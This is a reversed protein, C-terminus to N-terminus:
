DEVHYHVLEAPRIEGLVLALHSVGARRNAYLLALSAPRSVDRDGHSDESDRRRRMAELRPDANEALVQVHVLPLNEHRQSLGAFHRAVRWVVVVEGHAVVPGLHRERSLLSSGTTHHTRAHAIADVEEGIGIEVDGAPAPARHALGRVLFRLRHATLPYVVGAALVVLNQLRLREAHLGARLVRKDHLRAAEARAASEPDDLHRAVGFALYVLSFVHGHERGDARVHVFVVQRERGGWVRQPSHHEVLNVALRLVGADVERGNTEVLALYRREFDALHHARAAHSGNRAGFDGHRRALVPAHRLREPREDDDLALVERAFRAVDELSGARRQVDKERLALVLVYVRGVAVRLRNRLPQLLAGVVQVHDRLVARCPDALLERRLYERVDLLAHSQIELVALVVQVELGYRLLAAREALPM